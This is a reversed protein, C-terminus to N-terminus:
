SGPQPEPSTCMAPVRVLASRCVPRRGTAELHRPDCCPHQPCSPCRTGPAWVHPPRGSGRRPPRHTEPGASFGELQLLEPGLAPVVLLRGHGATLACLARRQGAAGRPESSPGKGGSFWAGLSLTPATHSTRGGGKGLRLPAGPGDLSVRLGWVSHRGTWHIVAVLRPAVYSLWSLLSKSVQRGWSVAAM